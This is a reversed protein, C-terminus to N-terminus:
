ENALVEWSHSTLKQQLLMKAKRLRTKLTNEHIETLHAIQPITLEQYYYLIIVERYPIPLSMVAEAIESRENNKIVINSQKTPENFTNTLVMKRYRWSKLYDKCKNITIRTLCTKISSKQQFTDQSCYFQFFADQVIDEASAFNHVYLFALRLLYDTHEDVLSHFQEETLQKM